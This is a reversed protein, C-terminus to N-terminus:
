VAAFSRAHDDFVEGQAPAPKEAADQGRAGEDDGRADHGVLEERLFGDEARLRIGRRQVRADVEADLGVAGDEDDRVSRLHARADPRRERQDRGVLEVRGPAADADLLAHAVGPVAVLVRVSRARNAVEVVREAHRAGRRLRHQDGGRGRLPAHRRRLARGHVVLDNVRLAPLLDAVSCQHGRRRLQRHRGLLRQGELRLRRPFEDALFPLDVVERVDRGALRREAEVDVTFAHDVRRDLVRGHEAPRDLAEVVLLRQRDLADLLGHREVRDLRGHLELREAAHRHDGAVRPRRQLAALLQLDVPVVARVGAEVGLRELLLHDRAHM